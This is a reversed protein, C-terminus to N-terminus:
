LKKAKTILTYLFNFAEMPTMNLIDTEKLQNIIENEQYNFLNLEYKSIAVENVRQKDKKELVSNNEITSNQIEIKQQELRSLIEKANLIVDEPLGALKAVEIGYSQDAKGRKIKHLFIVTDNLEKVVISYNKICSYTEELDTLEHYHTAFLTKAKIKKALYEIVAWAISLGDFTSTGRGVEDLILLSKNTANKLINSVESMEVMFTSRGSSLDDSAGIRTFIRDVVSINADKAPVFCGIQAMLTILAIQRMFTSKGAMNPGTIILILNENQDLICDNPVFPENLMKEIVPHRSDILQIIGKSNITPKCYNNEIAVSAFSQLTDIISILKAINQIRQSHQSIETRIQVFLDYELKMVNDEANLITNEIEKLEPTIFREANALTQKRIYRNEPVNQLNARTVEIFYGFVKNFGVKLSKIGTLEREQQELNAIWNKGEKSAKRLKDVEENFGEKIIGGEKIGVPPNENISQDIKIYIDNLVDFNNYIDIFLKSNLQALSEKTEPLHKISNKLALLDRANAIGSVIKSILREIDYINKLHEKLNGLIYVNKTLEEVADLRETIQNINVLPEEIWRRLNRAGMSTLTKDLVWFLSGKKTNNIITETLELNKRTSSDIFMFNNINYYDIKTIYDLSSKQTESIYKFLTNATQMELEEYLNINLKFHNQLHIIDESPIIKEVLCNFREKLTKILTDNYITDIVLIESPKFKSIEDTLISINKEFSTLLFDGTSVDCISISFKKENSNIALIYNNKDENLLNGEILTGPTIIKVIDRKVIGKAISPDEIQECIAVKYGKEILKTIYSESSHYPVGCMPARDDLGCDRGTLTLELEKSAIKADEFFMEYFDGLRFFLICDKCKEKIELYQQMMPTLAM